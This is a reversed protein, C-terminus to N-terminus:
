EKDRKWFPDRLEELECPTEISEVTKIIEANVLGGGLYDLLDRITEIPEEKKHNWAYKPIDERNYFHYARWAQTTVTYNPEEDEYSEHFDELYLDEDLKLVVYSRKSVEKGM